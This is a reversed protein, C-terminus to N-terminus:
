GNQEAIGTRNGETRKCIMKINKLVCELQENKKLSPITRSQETRERSLVITGGPVGGPRVAPLSSLTKM